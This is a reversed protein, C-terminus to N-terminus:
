KMPPTTWTRSPSGGPTSCGKAYPSTSLSNWRWPGLRTWHTGCPATFGAPPVTTTWVPSGRGMGRVAEGHSRGRKATRSPRKTTPPQRHGSIQHLRGHAEHQRFAYYDSMTLDTFLHGDIWLVPSGVTVISLPYRLLLPSPSCGPQWM